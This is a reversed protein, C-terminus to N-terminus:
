APARRNGLCGLVEGTGELACVPILAPSAALFQHSVLALRAEDGPAFGPCWLPAAAGRSWGSCVQATEHLYVQGLAKLSPILSSLPQFLAGSSTELCCWLQGRRACPEQQRAGQGAWTPDSPPEPIPVFGARPPVLGPSQEPELTPLLGLEPSGPYLCLNVHLSEPQQPCLSPCPETGTVPCPRRIEDGARLGSRM